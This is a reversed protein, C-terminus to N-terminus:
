GDLEINATDNKLPQCRNFIHHRRPKRLGDKDVSVFASVFVPRRIRFSDGRQVINHTTPRKDKQTM